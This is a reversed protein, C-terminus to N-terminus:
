PATRFILTGTTIADASQAAMARDEALSRLLFDFPLRAGHRAEPESLQLIGSAVSLYTGPPIVNEFELQARTGAFEWFDLGLPCVIVRLQREDAVTCGAPEIPSTASTDGTHKTIAM